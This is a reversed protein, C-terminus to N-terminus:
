RPEVTRGPYGRCWAQMTQAPAKEHLLIEATAATCVTDDTFFCETHLFEFDKTKINNWEFISVASLYLTTVVGQTVMFGIKRQMFALSLDFLYFFGLFLVLLEVWVVLVQVRFRLFSLGLLNACFLLALTFNVVLRAHLGGTPPPPRASM